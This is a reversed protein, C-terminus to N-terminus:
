SYNCVQRQGSLLHVHQVFAFIRLLSANDPTPQTDVMPPPSVWLERTFDKLIDAATLIIDAKPLRPIPTVLLFHYSHLQGIGLQLVAYRITRLAFTSLISQRKLTEGGRGVSDRSTRSQSPRCRQRV